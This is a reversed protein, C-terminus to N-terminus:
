ADAYYGLVTAFIDDDDTKINIWRGEATSLNLSPVIVRGYKPIESTFITNTVTTTTSSTAEYLVVTADAVGVNKNAYILIGTIIFIKGVKPTVLNYATNIEDATANYAESFDLPATVLQGRSTVRVLKGNYEINTKISM